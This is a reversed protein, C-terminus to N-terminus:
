ATERVPEVLVGTEKFELYIARQRENEQVQWDRRQEKTWGKCFGTGHHFQEHHDRCLSFAFRDPARQGTGKRREGECDIPHHPDSNRCKTGKVVCPMLRLFALFEPEADAKM